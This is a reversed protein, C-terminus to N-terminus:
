GEEEWVPTYRASASDKDQSFGCTFGLRLAEKRVSEYEFTTVRRRLAPIDAPAFDPTYQRMLSLLVEGPPVTEAIRALAAASDKRGGPLVLHRIVTGRVLRDSEYVPAGTLAFMEALAAAAADPYDPALSYAEALASTGYKFDTLFVDVLGACARITEPSDYGGTNWVVPVTLEARVLRLAELVTDAFHTPTVLDICTAGKEQLDTLFLSLERPTLRMGQLPRVASIPKNQCYLCGLSCGAFFVAGAKDGFCPEEWPHLMIKSVTM